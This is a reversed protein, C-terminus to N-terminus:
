DLISEDYRQTRRGCVWRSNERTADQNAAESSGNALGYFPALWKKLFEKEM